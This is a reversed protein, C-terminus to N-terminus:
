HAEARILDHKLSPDTRSFQLFHSVRRVFDETLNHKAAAKLFLTVAAMSEEHLSERALESSILRTLEMLDEDRGTADYVLSLDLCVLIADYATGREAFGDRARALHVEAQEYRKLGYSIKGALWHFHLDYHRWVGRAGKYHPQNKKLMRAAKQPHGAETLYLGLFHGAMVSYAEHEPVLDLVQKAASIAQGYRGDYFRVAALVLLTRAQRTRDQLIRYRSMATNLFHEAEVLKRRDKLFSGEMEDLEGALVLDVVEHRGLTRRARQFLGAARDLDGKAKFIMAQVALAHAKVERSFAFDPSAHLITLALEVLHAAEELDYGLEGIAEQVLSRALLPSRYRSLARDVKRERESVELPLLTALDESAEEEDGATPVQEEVIANLLGLPSRPLRSRRWRAMEEHCTECQSQLHRLMRRLLAEPSIDGRECADLVRGTIHTDIATM